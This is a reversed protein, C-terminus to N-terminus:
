LRDHNYAASQRKLYFEYNFGLVFYRDRHFPGFVYCPFSINKYSLGALFGPKFDNEGTLRTYQLAIGSFFHPSFNYGVESWSFFFSEDESGSSLSYQAQTSLYFNKWGAEANAAFSLGRFRGVCYGLLPTISYEIAKGGSFTKGAYFSLTKVDEYNYRLEAYWKNKTEVHLMPNDTNINKGTYYYNEFLWKSQAPLSYQLTIAVFVLLLKGNM